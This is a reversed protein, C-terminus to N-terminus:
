LDVKINKKYEEIEFLEGLEFGLFSAIINTPFSSIKTNYLTVDGNYIRRAAQLQNEMRILSQQLKLFQESAKNDTYEEIYGILTIMRSKLEAADKQNQNDIYMNRKESLQTLVKEEHM